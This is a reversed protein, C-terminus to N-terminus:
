AYKGGGVRWDMIRERSKHVHSRVHELQKFVYGLNHAEHEHGELDDRLRRLCDEMCAADAQLALWLERWPNTVPPLM